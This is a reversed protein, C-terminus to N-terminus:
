NKNLELRFPLDGEFFCNLLFHCNNKCTAIDQRIQEAKRSYWVMALDDTKINGLLGWRYCLFIDGTSSIHIARDMNCKTQKVFREPYQYYAKFAELQCVQNTIKSGNTKLRILEDIVSCVKRSDKPWLFSFEEKKYWQSDSPTNNPQMAAMFYISNLRKDKDVWEVLRLIDDLNKEYIVCCIGKYLGNCFKDLYKIADNVRRYVGKVGRLYDHTDEDLSDLSIILSDLGSDAIKKAMIEDILYGNTAVNTKFRKLKCFGIIDLFGEKFFPEGGGFNIQFSDDTIERLSSVCKKWDELTLTNIKEKIFIDEKWKYCMKCNLMCADTIGFCSFEPRMHSPQERKPLLAKIEEKIEVGLEKIYKVLAM